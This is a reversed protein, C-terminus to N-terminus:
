AKFEISKKELIPEKASGGAKKSVFEIDRNITGIRKTMLRKQRPDLNEDTPAELKEIQYRNTLFVRKTDSPIEMEPVLEKWFASVDDVIISASCFKTNLKPEELSKPNPKKFATKMSIVPVKEDDLKVSLLFWLRPFVSLENYVEKLDSGSILIDVKGNFAGKKKTIVSNINFKKLIDKFNESSVIKGKVAYKKEDQTNKIFYEIALKSYGSDTKMKLVNGSVRVEIVAGIFEGISYATFMHHVHEDVNGQVLKSLYHM